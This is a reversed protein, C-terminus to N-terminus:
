SVTVGFKCRSFEVKFTPNIKYTEPDSFGMVAPQKRNQYPSINKIMIQGSSRNIISSLFDDGSSQYNRRVDLSKNKSRKSSSDHLNLSSGSYHNSSFDLAKLDLIRQNMKSGHIPNPSKLFTINRLNRSLVRLNRSGRGNEADTHEGNIEKNNYPTLLDKTKSMTEAQNQFILKELQTDVTGEKIVEINRNQKAIIQEIM